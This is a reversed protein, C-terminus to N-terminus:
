SIDGLSSRRRAGQARDRRDLEASVARAVAQPDMGPAANITIQHTSSGATAMSRAAPSTLPPRQDIRLPAAGAMGPTGIATAAALGASASKVLAAGGGLKEKFWNGVASAAGVVTDKLAGLRSTIGSILGDMLMGGIWAFVKSPSNIDFIGKVLDIIGTFVGKVLGYMGLTAANLGYEIGQWISAGLKMWEGANFLAKLQDLRLILDYIAMGIGVVAAAWPNARWLATGFRVVLALLGQIKLLGAAALSSAGGIAAYGLALKAFMFRALLMPGMISGIALLLAGIGFTLAAMVAVVKAIAGALVPNEAIWARLSSAVGGLWDVIEKAEPAVTAGIAALMNTFTGTASEWVNSLTTLESNVRQRLDAQAQLKGVTEQYGSLGKLMMTELVQLTEADDGFVEKIVAVRTQDSQISKLKELQAYLNELGAFNGQKDVFDLEFSLGAKKAVKNGKEVKDASLGAQFVKRIANGASGGDTMGAQNMMALLPALANAAEVGQKKIVNLVPSMKSFGQLMFGSDLGLGNTKQITDMLSMMEAETSRTADQMQAAFTAAEAVPMRLKVALYAAAEGTGGLISKASVGQDKLVRMMDIFDATTGPLRDGLKIALEELQKYEASISGNALMMASQLRATASEQQAFAGLSAAVPAGMAAGAAMGGVGAGTLQGATRMGKNYSSRAQDLKKQQAALEDLKRRQKEIEATASATETKLRQQAQATSGIGMDKLQRRLGIVSSKQKEYETTATALAKAAEQAAKSNEGQTKRLMELNLKLIKVKEAVDKFSAQQKKLSDITAQQRELEKLKDRAGKLAAAAESSSKSISRLPATAKNALDMIVQLRLNNAM